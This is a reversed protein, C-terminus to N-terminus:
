RGGTGLIATLLREMAKDSIEQAKVPATFLDQKKNGKIYLRTVQM